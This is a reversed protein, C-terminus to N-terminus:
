PSPREAGTSCKQKDGVVAGPKGCGAAALLQECQAQGGVQYTGLSTVCTLVSPGRPAAELDAPGPAGTPDTSATSCKQKDGVVAGPNKCGAAALLQECQAQGGVDYTGLSTVCTLLIPEPRPATLEDNTRTPPETTATSCKQKDGVVAGPKTCGAIALLAECAKSGDVVHTGLSTVCTLVTPEPAPAALDLPQPSDSSNVDDGAQPAACAASGLAISALAFTFLSHMRNM